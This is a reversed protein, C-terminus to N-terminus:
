AVAILVIGADPPSVDERVVVRGDAVNVVGVHLGEHRDEPLALQNGPRATDCLYEVDTRARRTADRNPRGHAVLVADIQRAHLDTLVVFQRPPVQLAALLAGAGRHVVQEVLAGTQGAAVHDAIRDLADKELLADVPELTEAALDDLLAPTRELRADTLHRDGTAIAGGRPEVRLEGVLGLERCSGTSVDDHMGGELHPDSPVACVLEVVVAARRPAPVRHVARGRAHLPRDPDHEGLRQDAVVLYVVARVERDLGVEWLARDGVDAIGLARGR